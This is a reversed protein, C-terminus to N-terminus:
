DEPTNPTFFRRGIDETGPDDSIPTETMGIGSAQQFMDYLNYYESLMGQLKIINRRAKGQEAPPQAPDLAIDQFEEIKSSFDRINTQLKQETYESSQTFRAPEIAANAILQRIAESERGAVLEFGMTQFSENLKQIISVAQAYEPGKLFEPGVAGTRLVLDSFVQFVPNVVKTMLASGAGVGKAIDVGPVNTISPAPLNERATLDDSAVPSLRGEGLGPVPLIEFGEVTRVEGANQFHQVAVEGGEAMPEAPPSQTAGTPPFQEPVGTFFSPVTYIPNAARFKEVLEDFLEQDVIEGTENNYIDSAQVVQGTARTIPIGSRSASEPFMSRLVEAEAMAKLKADRQTAAQQTVAPVPVAEEMQRTIPNMTRRGHVEAGANEFQNMRLNPYTAQGDVMVMQDPNSYRELNTDTTMAEVMGARTFQNDYRDQLIRSIAIAQDSALNAGAIDGQLRLSEAQTALQVYQERLSLEERSELQQALQRESGVQGISAQLAALDGARTAEEVSSIRESVRGPLGSAAAAIQSAMPLRTTSEGTRPDVGGALNLGVQAIDFMIGSQAQKRLADSDLVDRFMGQYQPFLDKVETYPTITSSAASESRAGQLVKRPDFETEFRRDPMSLLGFLNDPGPAHVGTGNAFHQVAGGNAFQQPPAEQNAVMLSGVGQGMDTLDGEETVMDVEGTLSQMLQGIGSDVNGEETMMIVPQVMALVSEPTKEADDEGVYEALEAFREDLPLKNGRLADIVTKFNEANDLSNVMELVYDQGVSEMESSAMQGAAEVMAQPDQQPLAAVGAPPPPPLAEIGAPGGAQRFLPRQYANMM